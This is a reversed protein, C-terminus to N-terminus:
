CEHGILKEVEKDIEREVMKVAAMNRSYERYQDGYFLLISLSNLIKKIIIADEEEKLAFYFLYFIDDDERDTMVESIFM